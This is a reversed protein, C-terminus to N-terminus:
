ISRPAPPFIHVKDAPIAVRVAQGPEFDGGRALVVLPSNGCVLWVRTAIGEFSTKRVRGILPYGADPAIQIDEPRVTATLRHGNATIDPAPFSGLDCEFVGRRIRGEFFNCGGFFECVERDAPRLFLDQPSGLQRLRGGLLLGIRRSIMLAESQDHTVFLTTIRTKTQIDRILDRMQQRLNADLNSLPEDLLLVSPKLVLARALAVRQQQGGSLEHVKRHELGTLQTLELMAGVRSRVEGTSVGQMRMGFGINQEVNLFPFLLPNQFVMVANRKEPPLNRVSRGDILIEGREPRLLGAVAKLITTKGSGSPGLLSVLEGDAVELSFGLIVAEDGYSIDIGKVILCGM